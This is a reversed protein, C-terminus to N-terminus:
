LECGARGGTFAAAVARANARLSGLYTAGPSGAPGLTDAYLAPGVKAGADRAIARELRANLSSEPFVTSVGESRIRRVLRTVDSASPQARTSLAPLVTGVVTIAYRAAFYGLADHSTVLRRRGEPIAGMCAGIAADLRDIRAVYRAANRRYTARGGPDAAGLADRIRLVAVRANRPDQWWHPDVEGGARRPRVADLLTVAEVDSGAGALVDGLWEDLDGGSRLVVDADGLARADSPRPEYEHPDSNPELIQTVRARDGAVQRALDGLQTTTAVVRTGGGAGEDDGCGAALLGAVALAACLRARAPVRGVIVLVLRM